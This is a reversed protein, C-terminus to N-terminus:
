SVKSVKNWKNIADQYASLPSTGFGQIIVEKPTSKSYSLNCAWTPRESQLPKDQLMVAIGALRDGHGLVFEELEYLVHALEAARALSDYAKQSIM